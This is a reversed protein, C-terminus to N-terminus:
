TTRARGKPVPPAKPPDGSLVVVTASDPVGSTRLLQRWEAEPRFRSTEYIAYVFAKWEISTYGRTDALIEDAVAPVQSSSSLFKYEILTQISPLGTDPEFNKIPKGLRPKHTLDPFVCRLIGEARAHVDAESSPVVPFLSTNNITYAISRLISEVDKTITRTGEIALTSQLASRFRRAPAAWVSIPEGFDDSDTQGLGKSKAEDFTERIDRRLEPLGLREAVILLQTYALQLYREGNDTAFPDDTSAGQAIYLAANALSGSISDLAGSLEAHTMMM